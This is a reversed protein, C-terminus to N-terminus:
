CFLSTLNHPGNAMLICRGFNLDALGEPLRAKPVSLMEFYCSNSRVHDESTLSHCNEYVTAKPM